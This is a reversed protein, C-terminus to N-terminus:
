ACALAGAPLRAVGPTQPVGAAEPSARRPGPVGIGREWLARQSADLLLGADGEAAGAHRRIAQAATGVDGMMLQMETRLGPFARPQSICVLGLLDRYYSVEAARVGALLWDSRLRQAILLHCRLLPLHIQERHHRQGDFVVHNFSLLRTRKHSRVANAIYPRYGDFEPIDFSLGPEFWTSRLSGVLQRGDTLAWLVHNPQADYLDVCREGPCPPIAGEHLYAAHRLAYVQQRLELSHVRKLTLM